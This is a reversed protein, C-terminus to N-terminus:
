AAPAVPGIPQASSAATSAPPNYKRRLILREGLSWVTTVTLYLTAAFPVFAAFVVTLYPLYSLAKTVGTLDPMPLPAVGPKGAVAPRQPMAPQEMPIPALFRRSLTATAAIILLLTGFVVLSQWDVTGGAVIDSLRTGLPV